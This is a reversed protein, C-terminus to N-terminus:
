ENFEGIRKQDKATARINELMDSFPVNLREASVAIAAQLHPALWRDFAKSEEGEICQKDIVFNGALYVEGLTLEHPDRALMWRGDALQHVINLEELRRLMAEIQTPSFASEAERLQALDLAEGRTQAVGLRAILRAALWFSREAREDSIDPRECHGSICATIEAGLLVIIWSLFIWLLFIPIISFAGYVLEYNKAHALYLTFGRKALEFMIGTVLAGIFANRIGVKVRPVMIFLIWFATTELFLPVLRLLIWDSTDAVGGHVFASYITFVYTSVAIGLGFLLPGLTLVAWYVLFTTVTRRHHHTRWIYSMEQDIEALTIIALVFLWILGLWTLHSAKESFTILYKQVTQGSVPMMESLLLHTIHGIIPQFAPFLNLVGLGVTVLPVIALLTTFTLNGAIQLCRDHFFRKIVVLVFTLAAALM